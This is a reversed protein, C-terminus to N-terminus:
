EHYGELLSIKQKRNLKKIACERKMADSKSDFEELYIMEVPLRTKTYKSAKGSNHKKLRATPDTTYGTYFSNDKCRLIYVYAKKLLIVWYFM